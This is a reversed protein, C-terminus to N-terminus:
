RAMFTALRETQPQGIIHAGGQEVVRGGDMFVVQSAVERAFTMEHTVVLMTMGEGALTRIVELVEAVREPDLASTIEDLLLVKPQMALARAIAVRQQEGGSLFGPYDHMRDALGVKELLGQARARAERRPEGKVKEPAVAVNDVATMHSFLNFQQFVMSTQARMRAIIKRPRLRRDDLNRYGVMEGDLEISGAEYPELFNICRLLTSKGSGSPGIIICVQGKDVNLTVQDLVQHDAFHKSVRDIQVM